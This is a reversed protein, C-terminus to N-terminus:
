NFPRCKNLVHMRKDLYPMVWSVVFGLLMVCLMEVPCLLPM